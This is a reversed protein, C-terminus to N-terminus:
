LRMKYGPDAQRRRLVLRGIEARRIVLFTVKGIINYYFYFKGRRVEGWSDYEINRYITPDLAKAVKFPFPATNAPIVEISDESNLDSKPEKKIESQMVVATKEYLMSNVIEDVHSINFVEEYLIKYVIAAFM